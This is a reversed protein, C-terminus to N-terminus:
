VSEHNAGGDADGPDNPNPGDSDRGAAAVGVTRQKGVQGVIPEVARDARGSRDRDDGLNRVIDIM